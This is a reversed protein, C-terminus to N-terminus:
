LNHRQYRRWLARGGVVLVGLCLLAFLVPGALRIVGEVGDVFGGVSDHWARVVGSEPVPGPRPPPTGESVTVTLTSYSTQSNLLNLQGQLQEIQSQIGDLQEQVALVDGVTTAKALITLYQQRSDELATIRSQLDVYQGTVDTAKTTLDSTKGLAQAQKLVTSFDNVPVQLTISGYPAGGTGAGSQTQSSAVFGGFAGALSTLRTMTRDLDGRGVSLGLAGTQEIKSPQGVAGSPLSPSTPTPTTVAPTSAAHQAGNSPLPAATRASGGAVASGQPVTTTAGSVPAVLGTRPLSSTLTPGSPSRVLAGVTGAVVLAVVICAAASIVRHRGATAVLRRVRGDRIATPEDPAGEDGIGGGGDHGASRGTGAARALIDDAGSAPVEFAAGARAFLSALRDDDLMTM